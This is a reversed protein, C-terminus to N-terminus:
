SAEHSTSSAIWLVPTMGTEYLRAIPRMDLATFCWSHPATASRYLIIQFDGAEVSSATPRRTTSKNETTM